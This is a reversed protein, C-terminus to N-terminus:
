PREAKSRDRAVLQLPARQQPGNEAEIRLARKEAQEALTLPVGHLEAEILVLLRELKEDPMQARWYDAAPNEVTVTAELRDPILRLHKALISLAETKSWRRIQVGYKQSVEISSISAADEDSWASPPQLKGNRFVTRPDSFAIRALEEIVRDATVGTRKAQKAMAEAVAATIDDKTLWRAAVQRASRASCGARRAAAAANWDVTLEQVFARQKPTM